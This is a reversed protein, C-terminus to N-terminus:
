NECIFVPRILEGFLCSIFGAHFLWMGCVRDSGKKRRKRGICTEEYIFFFGGSRRPCPMLHSQMLWFPNVVLIFLTYFVIAIIVRIFFIIIFIIM